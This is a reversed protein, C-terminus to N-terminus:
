LTVRGSGACVPCNENLYRVVYDFLQGHKQGTGKCEICPNKRIRKNRVRLPIEM